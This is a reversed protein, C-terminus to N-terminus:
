DGMDVCYYRRFTDVLITYSGSWDKYVTNFGTLMGRQDLQWAESHNDNLWGLDTYDEDNLVKIVEQPSYKDNIYEHLIMNLTLESIIFSALAM